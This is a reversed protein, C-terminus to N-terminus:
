ADHFLARERGWRLWAQVGEDFTRAGQGPNEGTLTSLADFWRDPRRALERLILPVVSDGMAIITRYAPHSYRRALISYHGTDKRWQEALYQFQFETVSELTPLRPGGLEDLQELDSPEKQAVFLVRLVHVPQETISYPDGGAPLWSVIPSGTFWQNELRDSRATMEQGLLVNLRSTARESLIASVESDSM